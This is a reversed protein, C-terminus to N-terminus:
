DKILPPEKELVLGMLLYIFLPTGSGVFFFVVFLIRILTPDIGLYEAIGGCVGFIKKDRRSKFLRKKHKLAFADLEAEIQKSRSAYAERTQEKIKKLRKDKKKKKKRERSFFGLGYLLVFIGGLIPLATLAGTLDLDIPFILQMVALFGVLLFAMGTISVFNLLGPKEDKEEAELYSELTSELESESIDFLEDRSEGTNKYRTKDM